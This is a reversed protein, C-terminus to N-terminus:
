LEVLLARHDSVPLRRAEVHQVSVHRTLVHDIRRKPNWAPYTPPAPLARLGSARTVARVGANFDGCLLLPGAPLRDVLHRLQHTNWVPLYSLHTTVVTLTPLEVVLAVRPEDRVLAPRPMGPFWIPHRGPMAPLRLITSSLVDGRVLMGVGYQPGTDGERAPRADVFPVGTLAPAFAHWTAGSREAALAVLDARHSREQDRDVEQLAVVDADLSAVADAYRDLDVKGDSLSRGNLANFTAVRM